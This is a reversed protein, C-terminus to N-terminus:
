GTSTDAKPAHLEGFGLEEVVHAYENDSLGSVLFPYDQTADSPTIDVLDGGPTRVISHAVFKVHPLGPLDFYLWGRVPTFEPKLECWDTANHHCMNHKPQWDGGEIVARGAVVAEGVRDFLFLAYSGVDFDVMRALHMM